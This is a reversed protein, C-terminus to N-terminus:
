TFSFISFDQPLPSVSSVLPSLKGSPCTSFTAYSKLVVRGYDDLSRQAVQTVFAGAVGGGVGNHNGGLNSGSVVPCFFVSCTM